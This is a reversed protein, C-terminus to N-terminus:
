SSWPPGGTVIRGLHSRVHGFRGDDDLWSQHAASIEDRTRAVYNM